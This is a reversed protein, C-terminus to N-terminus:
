RIRLSRGTVPKGQDAADMAADITLEDKSKTTKREIKLSSTTPKLEGYKKAWALDEASPPPSPPISLSAPAQPGPPKPSAKGMM